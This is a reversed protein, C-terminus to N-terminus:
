YCQSICNNTISDSTQSHFKSSMNGNTFYYGSIDISYGMGVPEQQAYKKNLGDYIKRDTTTKIIFFRAINNKFLINAIEKQTKVLLSNVERFDKHSQLTSTNYVHKCTVNISIEGKIVNSNFMSEFEQYNQAEMNRRNQAKIPSTWFYCGSLKKWDDSISLINKVEDVCVRKAAQLGLYRYTKSELTLQLLSKKGIKQLINIDKAIEKNNKKCRQLYQKFQKETEFTKIKSM